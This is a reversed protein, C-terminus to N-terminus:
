PGAPAIGQKKGAAEALRRELIPLYKVAVENDTWQLRLSREFCARAAAFDELEVYHLGLHVTTFCSNPDLEVARRWYPVSEGAALKEPSGIWDLCMGFGEWNGGFHPNLKMGREYWTMARRGLAVYDAV